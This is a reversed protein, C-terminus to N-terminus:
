SQAEGQPPTNGSRLLRLLKLSELPHGSPDFFAQNDVASGGYYRGADEPDYSGAYSSAWGSGYREWLAHNEEWSSGGVSIWAGEWYVVGLAGSTHAAADIVDRFANAQGQVTCPYPMALGSDPGVTNASFDSDDTTYAYSTEMVIVKKGYTEAVESLVASLNELSGHWFPYYSSAFVDYDVEYKALQAAYERYAGSREPNTFHVAVLAKPCVERVAKSGAALLDKIHYWTTEGCLFRNTENGVQVLAIEAGSAKLKKLTARTFDYVAQSKESIDMGQWAKPVMQKGPDAWFDSYHFDVILKLGYKAARRAIEAARDPDCNGGGYGRGEGDYPDNWIRVRIHTFGYNRLLRFLDTEQGDFDHYRVGSEEESLVSSVDMGLIFDEPLDPVPSVALTDSSIERAPPTYPGACAGLSLLLPLLSLLMWKKM